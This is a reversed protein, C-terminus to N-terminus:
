STLYITRIKTNSYICSRGIQKLAEPIDAIRMRLKTVRLEKFANSAVRKRASLGMCCIDPSPSLATSAFTTAVNGDDKFPFKEMINLRPNRLM